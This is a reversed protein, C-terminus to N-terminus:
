ITDEVFTKRWKILQFLKSNRVGNNILFQHITKLLCNEVCCNENIAFNCNRSKIKVWSNFQETMNETCREM